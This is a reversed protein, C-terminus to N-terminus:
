HEASLCIKASKVGISMEPFEVMISDIPSTVFPSFLVRFQKGSVMRSSRNLTLVRTINLDHNFVVDFSLDSVDIMELEIFYDDGWMNNKKLNSFVSQQMLTGISYVSLDLIELNSDPTPINPGDVRFVIDESSVSEPLTFSVNIKNTSNSFPYIESSVLIESYSATHVFLQIEMSKESFVEVEFVIEKGLPLENGPITFSMWPDLEEMFRMTINKLQDDKADLLVGKPEISHILYNLDYKGNLILSNFQTKVEKCEDTWPLIQYFSQPDNFAPGQNDTEVKLMETIPMEWIVLRRKSSDGLDEQNKQLDILLQELGSYASGGGVNYSIVPVSLKESIWDDFNYPASSQSTGALYIQADFAQDIFLSDSLSITSDEAVYSSKQYLTEFGNGLDFKELYDETLEPCSESILKTHYPRNMIEEVGSVIDTTENLFGKGAIYEVVKSSTVDLGISSWHPDRFRFFHKSEELSLNSLPNVVDIGLSEIKLLFDDFKKRALSSDYTTTKLGMTTGRPPLIVMLLSIGYDNLKSEFDALQQLVIPDIQFDSVLDASRVLYEDFSVVDNCLDEVVDSQGVWFPNQAFTFGFFVSSFLMAILALWNLYSTRNCM